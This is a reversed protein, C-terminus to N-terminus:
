LRARPLDIRAAASGSAGRNLPGGEDRAPLVHGYHPYRSYADLWSRVAWVLRGRVPRAVALDAPSPVSLKLGGCLRRASEEWDRVFWTTCCLDAGLRCFGDVCVGIGLGRGYEYRVRAVRENDAPLPARILVRRRYTSVDERFIWLLCRPSHGVDSVFRRFQRLAADFDPIPGTM